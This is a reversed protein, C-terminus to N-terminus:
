EPVSLRALKFRTDAPADSAAFSYVLRTGGDALHMERVPNAVPDWHGEMGRAEVLWWGAPLTVTLQAPRKRSGSVTVCFEVLHTEAQYKASVSIAAGEPKLVADGRALSISTVAVTEGCRATLEARGVPREGFRVALDLNADPYRLPRERQPLLTNILDRVLPETDRYVDGTNMVWVQPPGEWDRLWYAHHQQTWGVPAPLPSIIIAPAEEPPDGSFEAVAFRRNRQRTLERAIRRAHEPSDQQLILPREDGDVLRNAAARSIPFVDAPLNYDMSAPSGKPVFSVTGKEYAIDFLTHTLGMLLVASDWLRRKEGGWAPDYLDHYEWACGTASVFELVRRALERSFVGDCIRSDAAAYLVYGPTGGSITASRAHTRLGREFGLQRWAAVLGDVLYRDDAPLVGLIAGRAYVEPCLSFDLSGDGGRGIAYWPPQYTVPTFNRLALRARYAIEGYRAARDRDGVKRALRAGYEASAILLWSNDLLSDLERVPSALLWTEDGNMPQLYDDPVAAQDLCNRVMDWYDAGNVRGLEEADRVMLVLYHPVEVRLYGYHQGSLDSTGYSSRIGSKQWARHFFDLNLKAEEVLGLELLARQVWYNDRVWARNHAYRLSGTHIARKGIHSRILCLLSDLLDDTREEGTVLPTRACWDEWNTKTKELLDPLRALSEEARGLFKELRVRDRAGVVALAVAAKRGPRLRGLRAELVGENNSLETDSVFGLQDGLRWSRADRRVWDGVANVSFTLAADRTRKGTNEVLFWRVLFSDEEGMPAFDVCTVRLGRGESESVAISTHRVRRLRQEPFSKLLYAKSRGLKVGVRLPRALVRVAKEDAWLLDLATLDGNDRGIAAFVQPSGLTLGDPSRPQSPKKGLSKFTSWSSYSQGSVWTALWAAQEGGHPSGCGFALGVLACAALLIWSKGRRAPLSNKASERRVAPRNM